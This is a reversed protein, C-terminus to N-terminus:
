IYDWSRLSTGRRGKEDSISGVLSSSLFTFMNSVLNELAAANQADGSGALCEQPKEEIDFNACDKTDTFGHNLRAYRDTMVAPVVGITSGFGLALLLVLILIQRPAKKEVFEMIFSKRKQVGSRIPHKSASSKTTTLKYQYGHPQGSLHLVDHDGSYDTHILPQVDDDDTCTTSDAVLPALPDCNGYANTVSGAGTGDQQPPM